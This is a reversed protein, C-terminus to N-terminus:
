SGRWTAPPRSADPYASGARGIIDRPESAREVMNSSDGPLRPQREVDREQKIQLSSDSALTNESLAVNVDSWPAPRRRGRANRVQHPLHESRRPLTALVGRDRRGPQVQPEQHHVREWVPVAARFAPTGPSGDVVHHQNGSAM